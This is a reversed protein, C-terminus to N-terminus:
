RWCWVRIVQYEAVYASGPLALPVVTPNDLPPKIVVASSLGTTLDRGAGIVLDLFPSSALSGTGNYVGLTSITSLLSRSSLQVVFIRSSSFDSILARDAGLNAVGHPLAAPPLGTVVRQAPHQDDREEDDRNEHSVAETDFALPDGLWGIGWPRCQPGM